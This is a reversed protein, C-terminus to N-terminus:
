TGEDDEYDGGGLGLACLSCACASDLMHMSFFYGGCICADIYAASSNVYDLLYQM